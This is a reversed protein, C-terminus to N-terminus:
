AVKCRTYRCIKIGRKDKTIDYEITGVSENIKDIISLAYRKGWYHASLILTLAVILRIIM